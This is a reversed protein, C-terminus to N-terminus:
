ALIEVLRPGCLATAYLLLVRSGCGEQLLIICCYQSCLIVEPILLLLMAVITNQERIDIERYGRSYISFYYLLLELLAFLLDAFQRLAYMEILCIRM